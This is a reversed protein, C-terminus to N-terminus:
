GAPFSRFFDNPWKFNTYTVTAGFGASRVQYWWALPLYLIEGPELTVEYIRAGALSPYRAIEFDPAELDKIESLMHQHNYLKDVQGAAVIKFRNRGSIQAVLCNVLDHHLPTLLNSSGIWFTGGSRATGADLLADLSGCDSRLRMALAPNHVTADALIYGGDGAEHRLAFEIFQAFSMRKARGAPVGARSRELEIQCDVDLDGASLALHAPTWSRIAKWASMDGALIVPRGRSYYRELFESEGIGSRREIADALPWLRQQREMAELLWDRKRLVIAMARGNAILPDDYATEIIRKAEAAPAGLAIVRRILDARDAGFMLDCAIMQMQRDIARREFRTDKRGLLQPPVQAGKFSTSLTFVPAHAPTPARAAETKEARAPAAQQREPIAEPWERYCSKAEESLPWDIRNWSYRGPRTELYIGNEFPVDITAHGPYTFKFGRPQHFLDRRAQAIAVHRQVLGSFASGPTGVFEQAGRLVLNSVWELAADEHFPLHRFDRAFDSGILSALFVHRSFHAVIPAFFDVNEPEDTFIALTEDSSLNEALNRLIEQAYDLGRYPMLQRFDGVRVHVANFRGLSEAVAAALEGYPKRPAVREMTAYFSPRPAYIIRSYYGTNSAQLHLVEEVPDPFVARSGAFERLTEEDHVRAADVFVAEALRIDPALISPKAATIRTQLEARSAIPVPLDDVLDLIRPALPPSARDARADPAAGPAYAGDLVLTRGTLHAIGVALEVSLLENSLDSEVVRFLLFRPSKIM